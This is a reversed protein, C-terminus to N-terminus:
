RLLPPASTLIGDLEQRAWEIFARGVYLSYAPPISESLETGTMWWGSGMAGISAALDGGGQPGVVPVWDGAKPKRGMPACRATHASHPAPTIPFSREFLRHRFVQLEFMTGCLMIPDILPANPVNEIVFHTGSARLRERVTAVLDPYTKGHSRFPQTASSYEQCPPSAHILDFGGDLPYTLADAQHFEFPYNPQPALDVGVVEFGALAYGV